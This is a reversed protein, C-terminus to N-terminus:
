LEGYPTRERGKVIAMLEDLKKIALMGQEKPLNKTLVKILEKEENMKELRKAFTKSLTLLVTRRNNDPIRREVIKREVLGDVVKSATSKPQGTRDCLEKLTLQKNFTLILIVNAQNMNLQYAKCFYQLSDLVLQYVFALGQISPEKRKDKPEM